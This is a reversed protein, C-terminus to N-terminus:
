IKGEKYLKLYSIFLTLILPGIFIGLLGFSLLGGFIGIYILLPHIKMKKSTIYPRIVNDIQSIVLAGYFLLFIGAYFTLNNSQSIGKSMITLGLPLWVFGSGLVPIMAFLTLILAWFLPASILPVGWEAFFLNIIFFGLLAILGQITSTIFYGFIVSKTVNHTTDSLNKFHAKSMPLNKELVKKISDGDRLFYFLSLLMIFIGLLIKPLMTLFKSFKQIISETIKDLSKTFYYNVKTNQSISRVSNMTHCTLDKAGCNENIPALFIQKTSIYAVTSEKILNDVILITPIIFAVLVLITVLLASLWKFRVVKLLVNYLPKLVFTLIIAVLVYKLLPSTLYIAIITLFILFVYFFAFKHKNSISKM